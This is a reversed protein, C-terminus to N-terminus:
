EDAGEKFNEDKWYIVEPPSINTFLQDTAIIIKDELDLEVEEEGVTCAGHVMSIMASGPVWGKYQQFPDFYDHFKKCVMERAREFGALYSCRMEGSGYEECPPIEGGRQAMTYEKALKEKLKM